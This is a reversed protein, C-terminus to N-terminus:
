RPLEASGGSAEMNPESFLAHAEYKAYEFGDKADKLERRVADVQSPDGLADSEAAHRQWMRPDSGAFSVVLAAILALM